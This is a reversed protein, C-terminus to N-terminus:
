VCRNRITGIGEIWSELVQGPHLFRPPQRTMGVGTPTGTFIVDGPLLPLVASLEVRRAKRDADSSEALQAGRLHLRDAAADFASPTVAEFGVSAADNRPGAEVIIRHAAHDERWTVTAEGAPEGPGLGIVDGFFSTLSHPDPVEIGLYALELDHHM